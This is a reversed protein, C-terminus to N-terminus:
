YMKYVFKQRLLEKWVERLGTYERKYCRMKNVDFRKRKGIKPQM